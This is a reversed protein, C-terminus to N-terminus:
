QASREGAPVPLIPPRASRAPAEPAPLIPPREQSKEKRQVEIQGLLMGPAVAAVPVWGSEAGCLGNFVEPDDDAAVIKSFAILPTGILNLGRVLEERGDPYVRYILTPMVSFSNPLQRSTFTFGGEIDDFFLGYPKNAAKVSEILMKKLEARSVTKSAEVLLNSQRAAVAYGQQRRGHGNSQDFGDVPSRSMLFTKFVGKDVVTVRRAKVGEDDYPYYGVMDTGHFAQLTPDSYVSLFDPLVPQNIRKKFTQADNEDKLRAGEVRHGFIEHFFVASARGSLIAPGTYPEGVPAKELALLLEVMGSVTRLVEEDGPLGGPHFSMFTRNLGMVEGDAARISASILLRYFPMSMRIQAGDTSVYRRTEIEGIATVDASLIDPHGRFAQGYKRVKQEWASRDFSFPGIPELYKEAIGPSFDPSKDEQALKIDQNTKVAEYLQLAEKFQRDTELWLSASLAAPDDEIPIAGVAATGPRGGHTSDLQYDGVRLDIDLLRTRQDNSQVLAGFSSQVNSARNDTLQYSVFYPPVPQKKLAAFSRGMESKMTDLVTDPASKEQALALLPLFLLPLFRM